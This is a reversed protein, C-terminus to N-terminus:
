PCVFITVCYPPKRPETVHTRTVVEQLLSLKADGVCLVLWDNSLPKHSTTGSTCLHTVCSIYHKRHIKVTAFVVVSNMGYINLQDPSLAPWPLVSIHNQNLFDHFVRVVHCKSNDHQFVHDFNRQQLFPLVIPDLIDDRYQVVNLTGQVIKLQTRGDHCMGAWVMVSGGGFRDSEYMCQDTLREGRSRYVRYRGDSFRLSFRSEDSFLIHQSTHLRWRRCARAWALRAIRHHQKLITGVVPLM